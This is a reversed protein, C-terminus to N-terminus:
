EAVQNALEAFREGREEYDRFMDYSSCAPALLVADGPRALGAARRVVEDFGGEVLEVPYDGGLDDAVLPGAEGFAIVQRVVDRMVPILARYSEGKHRGGLLLITPRDMSRIAVDTASLNTAKSDNVWIVDGRDLVPELRHPQPRFGRLGRRVSELDAGTLRAAISAALANAVNHRGLVM